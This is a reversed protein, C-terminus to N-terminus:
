FLSEKIHVIDDAFIVTSSDAEIELLTGQENKREVVLGNTTGRQSIGGGMAIAQAVTMGAKFRYAGPRNAEGYVYFMPAEPVYIIDGAKMEMNASNIQHASSSLLLKDVNVSIRRPPDDSMRLVTIVYSGKASVGGSLAIFDFLSKAGTEISYKGPKAVQGLVSVQQGTSQLVVINVQAQRLFGDNILRYGIVKEADSTNQGLVSVEGILPFNVTGKDSVKAETALDPNGYVSIRLLDGEQIVNEVAHASLSMFLLFTWVIFNKM